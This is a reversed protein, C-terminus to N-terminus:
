TKKPTSPSPSILSQNTIQNLDEAYFEAINVSKKPSFLMKEAVENEMITDNEKAKSSGPTAELKTSKQKFRKISSKKNPSREAEDFGELKQFTDRFFVGEPAFAEFMQSRKDNDKMINSLMKEKKKSDYAEYQGMFANFGKKYQKDFVQDSNSKKEVANEILMKEYASFDAISKLFSSHDM